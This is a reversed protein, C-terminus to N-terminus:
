GVTHRRVRQIGVLAGACLLAIVVGMGSKPLDSPKAPKTTVKGLQPLEITGLVGRSIVGTPDVTRVVLTFAGPNVGTINAGLSDGPARQVASFTRGGDRSQLIEYSSVQAAEQPQWTALVTYGQPTAKARIDLRRVDLAFPSLSSASSINLIPMADIGEPHGIFTVTNENPDLSLAGSGTSRVTSAINLVYIMNREQPATVITLANGLFILRKLPLIRGSGNMILFARAADKAQITVPHSFTLTVGTASTADIAILDFGGNQTPPTLQISPAPSSPEVSSASSSVSSVGVPSASSSEEQSPMAIGTGEVVAEELFFPSEESSVSVALVSVYLRDFSPLDTLFYETVPGNTEEYDDFSGGNQLISKSATYVRYFAIGEGAAEWQVRVVGNSELTATIGTVGTPATGFASFPIALLASALLFRLRNM